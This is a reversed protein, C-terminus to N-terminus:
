GPDESGVGPKGDRQAVEQALRTTLLGVGQNHFARREEGAASTRLSATVGVAAAGPLDSSGRSSLNRQSWTFKMDLHIKWRPSPTVCPTGRCVHSGPAVPPWSDPRSVRSTTQNSSCSGNPSGTRRCSATSLFLPPSRRPHAAEGHRATSRKSGKPLLDCGYNISHRCHVLCQAPGKLVNRMMRKEWSISVSCRGYALASNWTSPIRRHVLCLCKDKLLKQELPPLHTTALSYPLM